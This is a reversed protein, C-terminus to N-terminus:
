TLNGAKHPWSSLQDLDNQLALCDQSSRIESCLICDDATLGLNVNVRKTIANICLLFLVPGLISGQPVGSLVPKSSSQTRGNISVLQSLNKVLIGQDM